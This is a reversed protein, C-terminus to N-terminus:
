SDTKGNPTVDDIPCNNRKLEELMLRIDEVKGERKIREHCRVGASLAILSLNSREIVKESSKFIISLLFDVNACESDLKTIKGVHGACWSSYVQFFFSLDSKKKPVNSCFFVNTMAIIM